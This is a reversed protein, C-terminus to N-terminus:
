SRGGRRAQAEERDVIQEWGNMIEQSLIIRVIGQIDRSMEDYAPRIFPRGPIHKVVRGRMKLQFGREVLHAYKSPTVPVMKKTWPNLAMVSPIERRRMPGAMAYIEKTRKNIAVKSGIYRALMGTQGTILLGTHEAYKLRKNSQRSPAKAKMTKVLMTMAKRGAKKLAKELLWPFKDFQRVLDQLGEMGVRYAWDGM